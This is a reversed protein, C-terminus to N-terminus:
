RKWQALVWRSLSLFHIYLVDAFSAKKNAQKKTYKSFKEILRLPRGYVFYLM